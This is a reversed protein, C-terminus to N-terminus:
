KCIQLGLINVVACVDVDNNTVPISFKTLFDNLAVVQVDDLIKNYDLINIDTIKVNNLDGSLVNLQNGDLTKDINVTLGTLLAIDGTCVVSISGNNQCDFLGGHSTAQGVATEDAADGTDVCGVAGIAGLACVFM